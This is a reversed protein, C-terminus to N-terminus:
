LPRIPICLQCSFRGNEDMAVDPAMMEFIPRDDFQYGSAPLWEGCLWAWAAAIETANGTFDACAYRGGPLNQAGVEGRPVFQEDVEICADYRCREPATITPNDHGIGYTIRRPVALNTAHAWAMFRQWLAPIGHNGYPGVHRMYAVRVAPLNQLQVQMINGENAPGLPRLPAHHLFAALPDQDNKRGAQDIKRQAQFREKKWEQYGGRRWQTPSCAFCQRFNRAFVEASAFGADIAIALVAKRKNTILHMAAIELRRRRVYDALTEGMAAAFVRHFHYASFHAVAALTALDLPEAIHRDIHDLVRNLRALYEHRPDM